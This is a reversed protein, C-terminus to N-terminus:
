WTPEEKENAWDYATIILVKQSPEIWEFIILIVENLSTKGVRYLRGLKADGQLTFNTFAEKVMTANVGHVAQCHTRGDKERVFKFQISTGM